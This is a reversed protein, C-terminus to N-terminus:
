IGMRRLGWLESGLLVLSGVLLACPLTLRTGRVRVITESTCTVGLAEGIALELTDIFPDADDM